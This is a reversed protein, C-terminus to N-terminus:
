LYQSKHALYEKFQGTEIKTDMQGSHSFFCTSIPHRISCCFRGPNPPSVLQTSAADLVSLGEFLVIIGFVADMVLCPKAPLWRTAIRLYVMGWDM